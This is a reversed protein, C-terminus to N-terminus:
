SAGRRHPENRLEAEAKAWDEAAQGDKKGRQEYLEFIAPDLQRWICDTAHNWSWRIDLALEDLVDVGEINTPMLYYRPRNTPTPTPMTM